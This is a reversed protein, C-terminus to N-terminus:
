RFLQPPFFRQRFTWCNCVPNSPRTTALNNEVGSAVTKEANTLNPSSNGFHSEMGSVHYPIAVDAGIGKEVTKNDMLQQDDINECDNKAREKKLWVTNPWINTCKQHPHQTEAEEEQFVKRDLFVTAPRAVFFLCNIPWNFTGAIQAM